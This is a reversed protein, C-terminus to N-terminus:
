YQQGDSLLLKVSQRHRPPELPDSQALGIHWALSTERPWYLYSLLQAKQAHPRLFLAQQEKVSRKDGAGEGM